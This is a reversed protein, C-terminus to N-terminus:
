SRWKAILKLKAFVNISRTVIIKSGRSLSCATNIKTALALLYSHIIGISLDLGQDYIV